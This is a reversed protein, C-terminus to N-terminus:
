SKWTINNKKNWDALEKPGSSGVPYKYVVKQGDKSTTLKTSGDIVKWALEVEDNRVFLAQEGALAQELLVEYAEPTNEGHVCRHCYDMNVTEIEFGQRLSKSNLELSFGENPEIRITM